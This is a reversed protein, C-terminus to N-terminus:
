VGVHEPPQTLDPEGITPTDFAVAPEVRRLYDASLDFRLSTILGRDQYTHRQTKFQARCRHTLEGLPTDLDLTLVLPDTVLSIVLEEAKFDTFSKHHLSVLATGTLSIQRAWIGTVGEFGSCPKPTLEEFFLAIHEKEWLAEVGTAMHLQAREFLIDKLRSHLDM